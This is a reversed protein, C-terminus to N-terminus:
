ARGGHRPHDDETASGGGGGSRQWRVYALFLTGNDLITRAAAAQEGGRAILTKLTDCAMRVERSAPVFAM